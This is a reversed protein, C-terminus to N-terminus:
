NISIQSKTGSEDEGYFTNGHRYIYENRKTSVHLGKKGMYEENRKWLIDEQHVKTYVDGKDHSTFEQITNKEYPEEHEIKISYEKNTDLSEGDTSPTYM